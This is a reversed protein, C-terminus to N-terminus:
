LWLMQFVHSCPPFNGGAVLWVRVVQPQTQYVEGVPGTLKPLYGVMMQLKIESQTARDPALILFSALSNQFRYVVAPQCIFFSRGKGITLEAHEGTFCIYFVVRSSHSSHFGVDGLDQKKEQQIELSSSPFILSSLLCVLPFFFCLCTSYEETSKGSMSSQSTFLGGAQVRNEDRGKKQWRKCVQKQM